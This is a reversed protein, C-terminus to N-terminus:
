VLVVVSVSVMVPVLFSTEILVLALVVASGSCHGFGFGVCSGIGFGLSFGSSLVFVSVMAKM